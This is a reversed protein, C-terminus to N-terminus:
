ACYHLCEHELVPLHLRCAPRFNSCAFKSLTIGPILCSVLLEMLMCGCTAQSCLVQLLMM